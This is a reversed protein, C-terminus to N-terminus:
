HRREGLQLHEWARIAKVAADFEAKGQGIQKRSKTIM